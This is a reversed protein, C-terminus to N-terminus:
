KRSTSSNELYDLFARAQIVPIVDKFDCEKLHGLNSVNRVGLNSLHEKLDLIETNVLDPLAKQIILEISDSM